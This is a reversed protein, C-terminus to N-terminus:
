AADSLAVDHVYARVVFVAVTTSDVAREWSIWRGRSDFYNMYESTESAFLSSDKIAM